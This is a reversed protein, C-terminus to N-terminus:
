ILEKLKSMSNKFVDSDIGSVILRQEILNTITQTNIIIPEFREDDVLLPKEEKEAKEEKYLFSWNLMMNIKKLTELASSIPHDKNTEIRVYSDDRLGIVNKSIYRLTDEINENYCRLTLYTKAGKNEIFDLTYAGDEEVTARYFGKPEEEGHSLRDFSGQACIRDYQSRKHVHGIFILRKVLALYDDESHKINTKSVEPAQYGFMGHMFAYDVRTLGKQRILDRVDSLTDSTDHQWEDPVYLVDIGLSDITEVCLTDVYKYDLDHCEQLLISRITNFNASQARDHSPTGELVRLVVKNKHCLRILRAIWSMVLQGDADSFSLLDDFVDGVLVVLDLSSLMKTNCFHDNLNTIIHETSTRRHGLHIDSISGIRLVKARETSSTM